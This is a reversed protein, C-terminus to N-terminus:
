ERRRIELEGKSNSYVEKFILESVAARCFVGWQWKLTVITEFNFSGLSLNGIVVFNRKISIKLDTIQLHVNIDSTTQTKLHTLFDEVSLCKMGQFRRLLFLTSKWRHQMQSYTAGREYLLNSYRTQLQNERDTQRRVDDRLAQLFCSFFYDGHLTIFLLNGFGECVLGGGGGFKPFSICPDSECSERYLVGCTELWIMSKVEPM